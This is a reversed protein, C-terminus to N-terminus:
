QVLSRRSRLYKLVAQQRTAPRFHHYPRSKAERYRFIVHSDVDPNNKQQKNKQDDRKVEAEEM